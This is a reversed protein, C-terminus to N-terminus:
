RPCATYPVPDGSSAPQVMLPLRHSVVLALTSEEEGKYGRLTRDSLAM